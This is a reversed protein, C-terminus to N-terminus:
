SRRQAGAMGASAPATRPPVALGLEAFGAEAARSHESAESSGDLARALGLHARAREFRDGTSEALELAERYGVVSEATRGAMGFAEGLENLAGVESDVVGVARSMAVAASISDIADDYRGLLRYVVGMGCLADAEGVRYGVERCITLADEYLRISEPYSGRRQEITALNVLAVGEGARNGIERTIVLASQYAAAAEDVRDLRLYVEGLNNLARGEGAREGIERNIRVAQQLHEVSDPYLGLKLEVIGLSFLAHGEGVRDDLERYMGLADNLRERAQAYRGCRWSVVGLGHLAASEGARDVLERHLQLAQEHLLEADRYNALRRHVSGLLNLATAEGARDGAARAAALASVDLDLAESYYAHSDLYGNLASAFGVTHSPWTDAAAAAVALLNGREADLWAWGVATHEIGSATTLYHDFLRTLAVQRDADDLEGALEASYARLLDHMSFRGRRRADVLHARALADFVRRAARPEAGFLAAGAREDIDVGPHLSFLAFAHRADPGLQQQSWSFVARVATYKDDGASLLDLREAEDDFEAVLEALTDTERSLALEAVIRLALPLRASREALAVAADPEADVRNGLLTRLLAVADPRSLLDVGIRRAGHRAILAPLADRSTVLVVCTPDGPLLDRVQIVSDANDLLILLRRGAVLSRFRAALEPVDQPLAAGEVGLARLLYELAETPRVPRDPDYGRLNIYLQGDPFQDAVRHAWHVALATKGVGATGSLAVVRVGGSSTALIEDLEALQEARGTFGIVDAPLHRPVEAAAPPPAHDPQTGTAALWFGHFEEADGGLAEVILELLGWRPVRPESFAASVTTHSCGVDRSMDRLSPWGARHHLEHLADFLSGVPGDPVTPKPLAGM